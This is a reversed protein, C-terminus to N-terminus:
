AETVEVHTRNAHRDPFMNGSFRIFDGCTSCIVHKPEQQHKSLSKALTAHEM